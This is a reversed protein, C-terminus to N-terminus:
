NPYQINGACTVGHLAPDTSAPGVPAFSVISQCPIRRIRLLLSSKQLYYPSLKLM